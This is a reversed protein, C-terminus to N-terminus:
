FSQSKCNFSGGNDKSQRDCSNNKEKNAAIATFMKRVIDIIEGPSCLMKNQIQSLIEQQKFFHKPELIM